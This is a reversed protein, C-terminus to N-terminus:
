ARLRYHYGYRERFGAGAYLALAAPNDREVQLYLRQAGRAAAWRALAGLVARGAGAGRQEPLTLMSFVGAWGNEVVGLGTAAPEGRRRALGFGARPGLRALLARYVDPVAAFRSREGAVSWWDASCADAM